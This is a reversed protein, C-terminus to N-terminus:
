FEFEFEFEDPSKSIVATLKTVLFRRESEVPPSGNKKRQRDASYWGQVSLIYSVTM